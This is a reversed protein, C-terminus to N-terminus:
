SGLDDFKFYIMNENDIFIFLMNIKVIYLFVMMFWMIEICLVVKLLNFLIDYVIYM